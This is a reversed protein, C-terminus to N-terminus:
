APGRPSTLALTVPVDVKLVRRPAALTASLSASLSM